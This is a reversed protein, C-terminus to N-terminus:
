AILKFNFKIIDFVIDFIIRLIEGYAWVYSLSLFICLPKCFERSSLIIISIRLKISGGNM